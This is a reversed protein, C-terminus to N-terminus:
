SKGCTSLYGGVRGLLTRVFCRRHHHRRGRDFPLKSPKACVCTHARRSWLESLMTTSSAFCRRRHRHHHRRSKSQLKPSLDEMIYRLATRGNMQSHHHQHHNWFRNLVCAASICMCVCVHLCIFIYIHIICLFLYIVSLQVCMCISVRMHISFFSLVSLFLSLTLYLILFIITIITTALRGAALKRAFTARVLTHTHAREHWLLLCTLTYAGVRVTVRVCVCM